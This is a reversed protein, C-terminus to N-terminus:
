REEEEVETCLCVFGEAKSIERFWELYGENEQAKHYARENKFDIMAVADHNAEGQANQGWFVEEVGPLNVLEQTEREWDVTKQEDERPFCVMITLRIM